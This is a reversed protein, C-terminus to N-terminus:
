IFFYTVRVSGSKKTKTLLSRDLKVNGGIFDVSREMDDIVTVPINDDDSSDSIIDDIFTRLNEYEKADVQSKYDELTRTEDSNEKIDSYRTLQTQLVVKNCSKPVVNSAAGFSFKGPKGIKQKINNHKEPKKEPFNLVLHSRDTRENVNDNNVNKQYKSHNEEAPQVIERPAPDNKIEKTESNDKVVIDSSNKMVNQLSENYKDRRPSSINANNDLSNQSSEQSCPVTSHHANSFGNTKINADLKKTVTPLRRPTTPPSHSSLTPSSSQFAWRPSTIPPPPSVQDIQFKSLAAKVTNKKPREHEPISGKNLSRHIIPSQSVRSPSNALSNISEVSVSKSPIKNSEHDVYDSKESQIRRKSETKRDDLSDTSHSRKPHSDNTSMHSFKQKIKNVFGAGYEVESTESDDFVSDNFNNSILNCNKAPQNSHRIKTDSRVWPNQNVPLLHEETELSHNGHGNVSLGNGEKDTRLASNMQQKKKELLGRKWSPVSALKEAESELRLREM